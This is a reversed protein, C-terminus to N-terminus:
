PIIDKNTRLMSKDGWIIPPRNLNGVKFSITVKPKLGDMWDFSDMLRRLFRESSVVKQHAPPDDLTFFLEPHGELDKLVMSKTDLGMAKWEEWPHLGELIDGCKKVILWFPPTSILLLFKATGLILGIERCEIWLNKFLTGSIRQAEQKSSEWKRTAEKYLFDRIQSVVWSSEEALQSIARAKGPPFVASAQSDILMPRPGFLVLSGFLSADSAKWGPVRKLFGPASTWGLLGKKISDALVLSAVWRYKVASKILGPGIISLDEGDLVRVRKAFEIYDKSVISKALSISVGLGQMLSLYYSAISEPVIVDDGLIAYDKIVMPENHSNIIFHHTLALMAWSSYAGMPQGVSYKVVRNHYSFPMDVLWSWLYALPRGVFKVLIDRQIERPLRDTAATLDYSFYRSESAQLKWVPSLQNFTGDTPLLKLLKFIEKHLPFLATQVWYNTIGIVRAKGATNYVATLRSLNPQYYSPWADTHLLKSIFILAIECAVHDLLGFKPEAFVWWKQQHYTIRAKILWKYLHRILPQIKVHLVLALWVLIGLASSILFSGLIAWSRTLVFWVLLTIWYSPKRLLGITDWLLGKWAIPSNPGASTLLIPRSVLEKFRYHGRLGALELVNGYARSIASADLSKFAGSFSGEVTSLDVRPWWPIIRHIGLMTMTTIYLRRDSLMVKRLRGPILLPLGSTKGVRVGMKPTYASSVRVATCITYCEKLYSYVFRLNRRRGQSTYMDVIRKLLIALVKIDSPGVGTAWTLIRFWPYFERDKIWSDRRLSKPCNINYIKNKM